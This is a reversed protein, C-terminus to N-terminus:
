WGRAEAGGAAVAVALVLWVDLRAVAAAHGIALDANEVDAVLARGDIVEGRHHVHHAVLALLDRGLRKLRCANGGVLVQDFETALVAEVQAHARVGEVDDADVLLERAGASVAQGRPHTLRKAARVAHNSAAVNALDQHGHARLIRVLQVQHLRQTAGLELEGAPLLDQQRALPAERREVLLVHTPPPHRTDGRGSM